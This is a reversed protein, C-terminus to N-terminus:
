SVFGAAKMLYNNFTQSFSALGNWVGHIIMGITHGVISAKNKDDESEIKLKELVKPNNTLWQILTTTLHMGVAM